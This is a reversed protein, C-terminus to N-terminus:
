YCCGFGANFLQIILDLGNQGLIIIPGAMAIFGIFVNISTVIGIGYYRFGFWQFIFFNLVNWVCILFFSILMIIFLGQAMEKLHGEPTYSM